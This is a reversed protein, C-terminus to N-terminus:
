SYMLEEFAFLTSIYCYLFFRRNELIFNLSKRWRNHDVLMIMVLLTAVVVLVLVLVSVCLLYALSFVISKSSKIKSGDAPAGPTVIDTKGTLCASRFEQSSSLCLFSSCALEHVKM